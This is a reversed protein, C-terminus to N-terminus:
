TLVEKSKGRESNGGRPKIKIKNGKGNKLTESFSRLCDDPNM